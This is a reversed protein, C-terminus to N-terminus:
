SALANHHIIIDSLTDTILDWIKIIDQDNWYLKGINDFALADLYQYGELVKEQKGTETNWIIIKGDAAGSACKKGDYSFAVCRVYDTHGDLTFKQKGTELDWLIPSNNGYNALLLKGDKSIAIDGNYNGIGPLKHIENKGLSDWVNVQMHSLVNISKGDPNYAAMYPYGSKFTQICKGNKTDWIRVMQDSYVAVIKNGSPHYDAYKVTSSIGKLTQICQGSKTEWIKATEDWSSTIFYKGDISFNLSQISHKHGTFTNQIKGTSALYSKTVYGDSILVLSGDPSFKLGSIKNYRAEIEHLITGNRYDWIFVKDGCASVVRNSDACFDM